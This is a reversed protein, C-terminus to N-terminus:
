CGPSEEEQNEVSKPKEEQVLGRFGLQHQTGLDLWCCPQASPGLVGLVVGEWVRM